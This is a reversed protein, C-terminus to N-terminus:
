DVPDGGSFVSYLCVLSYLGVGIGAIGYLYFQWSQLGKEYALALCGVAVVGTLIFLLFSKIRVMFLALFMMAGWAMFAVGIEFYYPAEARLEPIPAFSVFLGSAICGIAGVVIKFKDFGSLNAAM